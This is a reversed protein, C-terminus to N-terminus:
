LHGDILDFLFLRSGSSYITFNSLFDRPDIIEIRRNGFEAEKIHHFGGKKLVEFKQAIVRGTSLIKMVKYYGQHTKVFNNASKYRGSYKSTTVKLNDIQLMNYFKIQTRDEECLLSKENENLFCDKVEKTLVLESRSSRHKQSTNKAMISASTLIKNVVQEKVLTATQAKRVLIGISNEVCYASCGNLQGFDLVMDIIHSLYHPGVRHLQQPYLHEFEELFTEIEGQLHKLSAVEICPKNLSTIILAFRKLNKFHATPLFDKFALFGYTFLLEHDIAKLKIRENPSNKIPLEPMTRLIGSPFHITSLRSNIKEIDGDSIFQPLNNIRGLYYDIILKGTGILQAHMYEAPCIKNLHIYPLKCLETGGPKLGHTEIKRLDKAEMTSLIQLMKRWEVDSREEGKSTPHFRMARQSHVYVGEVFCQACPFSCSHSKIHLIESRAPGDAIIILLRVYFKEERGEINVTIPELDYMILEKIVNSFIAKTPKTKGAHLALLMANKHRLYIPLENIYAFIPHMSNSMDNTFVAGDFGISITITRFDTGNLINVHDQRELLRYYERGDTIDEIIDPVQRDNKFRLQDYFIPVLFQLWSKLTMSLFYSDPGCLQIKQRPILPECYLCNSECSVEEDLNTVARTMGCPGKCYFHKSIIPNFLKTQKEIAPYSIFFRRFGAAVNLIKSFESIVVNPLTHDHQLSLLRFYIDKDEDSIVNENTQEERSFPQVIMTRSENVVIPDASDNELVSSNQFDEDDFTHDVAPPPASYLNPVLPNVFQVSLENSSFKMKKSIEDVSAKSSAVM